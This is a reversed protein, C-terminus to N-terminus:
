VACWSVELLRADNDRLIARFEDGENVQGVGKPTGTMVIDGDELTMFRKIEDLIEAPKNMMLGINGRQTPEGNIFLDFNLGDWAEEIKVFESMVASGDFAKAREWPLGKAKLKSQLNRKTLDLGLGVAVFGGNEVLFCLESEYHIAEDQYSILEDTICSNPKVFLVMQEPIENKLEEIHDVYNRGVCVIKSPTVVRNGLVVTNM